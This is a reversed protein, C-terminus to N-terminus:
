FETIEEVKATSQVVKNAHLDLLLKIDNKLYMVPIKHHTMPDAPPIFHLYLRRVKRGTLEEFFYAYLSLQICYKIYNCDQLHDLPAYLNKGYKSFFDIGAGNTKYDAIDVYSTKRNSVACIKDTTGAIKYKDNYLCVEDYCKYYEGYEGIVSKILSDFEQNDASVIGTKGYDELANHIRTGHSAANDRKEAWKAKTEDDAVRYAYTDEFPQSIFKLFKSVSMYEEGDESFYRHDAHNLKVKEPFLCHSM